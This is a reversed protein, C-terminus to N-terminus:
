GLSNYLEKASNLTDFFDDHVEEAKGDNVVQETTDAPLSALRAKLEEIQTNLDGIQKSYDKNRATLNEMDEAQQDIVAHLDNITQEQAKLCDEIKQVEELTLATNNDAFFLENNETGIVTGLHEFVNKMNELQKPIPLQAYELMAMIEDQASEAAPAQAPITGVADVLHLELVEDATLWDGKAMIELLHDIHEDGARNAYMKAITYDLKDLQEVAKELEDIKRRIEDANFNNWEMIPLSCKHALYLAHPDITITKAGLSAITAASANMGTFHVHVNGHRQFASYISMASGVQGGLSSILVNLERDAYKDVIYDVYDPDFDFGGVENKLYLDYKM